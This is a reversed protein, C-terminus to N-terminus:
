KKNEKYNLKNLIIFIISILSAIIFSIGAIKDKGYILILIGLIFLIIIGILTIYKIKKKNKRISRDIRKANIGVTM